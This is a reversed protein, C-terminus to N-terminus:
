YQLATYLDKSTRSIVKIGEYQANKPGYYGLSDGFGAALCRVGAATGCGSLESSYYYILRDTRNLM